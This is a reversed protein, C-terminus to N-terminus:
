CLIDQKKLSVINFILIFPQEILIRVKVLQDLALQAVMVGYFM